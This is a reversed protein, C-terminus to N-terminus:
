LYTGMVTLSLGALNPLWLCQKILSINKTQSTIEYSWTTLRDHSKIPPLGGYYIVIGGLRTALPMRTTFIHKLPQLALNWMRKSLDAM